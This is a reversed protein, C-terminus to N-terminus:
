TVAVKDGQRVGLKHLTEVVDLPSTTYREGHASQNSASLRNFGKLNLVVIHISLRLIAIASLTNLWMRNNALSRLRINLLIDAGFLVFVGIYRSTELVMGWLGFGTVSLFLDFNKVDFAWITRLLL